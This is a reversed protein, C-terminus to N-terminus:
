HVKRIVHHSSFARKLTYDPFAEALAQETAEITKRRTGVYSTGFSVVILAKESM